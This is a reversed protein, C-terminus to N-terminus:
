IALTFGFQNRWQYPYGGFEDLFDTQTRKIPLNGYIVSQYQFSLRRYLRIDVGLGGGGTLYTYSFPATFVQAGPEVITAEQKRASWGNPEWDSLYITNFRSQVLNMNYIGALGVAFPRFRRERNKFFYRRYFGSLETAAGYLDTFEDPNDPSLGLPVWVADIGARLGFERYSDPRYSIEGALGPMVPSYYFYNLSGVELNVPKVPVRSISSIMSIAFKSREWKMKEGPGVALAVRHAALSAYRRVERRVESGPRNGPLTTLEPLTHEVPAVSLLNASVPRLGTIQPVPQFTSAPATQPSQPQNDFTTDQPKASLRPMSLGSFKREPLPMEKWVPEPCPETQIQPYIPNQVLGPASESAAQVSRGEQDPSRLALTAILGIVVCGAMLWFIPFLYGTKNNKQPLAEDLLGSMKDWSPTPQYPQAAMTKRKIIDEWKDM